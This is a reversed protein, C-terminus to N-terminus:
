QKEYPIQALCLHKVAESSDPTKQLMERLVRASFVRTVFFAVYTFFFFFFRM